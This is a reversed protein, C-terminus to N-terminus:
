AMSVKLWSTVRRLSPAGVPVMGMTSLVEIWFLPYLGEFFEKLSGFVRLDGNDPTFCLHNSWYLSSYQLPDSINEKIRSPLDKIDANTLRSDELKCINFRLESLMTKLCAIGLQMNADELNIQYDRPCDNSLFFDSISLHRVRIAGNSREDKYLMSSLDDVWMKVHRLDVGSLAAISEECLPRYSVTTLLVGIMRQFKASSHVIRAKLIGSYLIYLSKLGADASAQLTAKLLETPDECRELALAITEIFIFLGAARSIVGDFLSPEPWPLQLYQKSALTSFREQAFIRLDSAAKEDAALDFPLHSSQTLTNFFRRIDVEPRSTIIIRLWPAQAAADTLVRLIGPRNRADGCEDLADIVFALTCKTPPLKRIFDLFISYKMSEPTLDPDNRLSEAVIIRFPPSIIALKYMLTPLINRAESLNPDDRRCFFSGALQKQNHLKECISHALSTKGIGPLGYIWFTNSQPADPGSSTTAWAMIQNLISERTGEMCRLEWNYSTDIPKLRARLWLDQQVQEVDSIASLSGGHSQPLSHKGAEKSFLVQEKALRLAEVSVARDFDEIVKTLEGDMEEISQPRVMRGAIM